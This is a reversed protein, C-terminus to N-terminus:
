PTFRREVAELLPEDMPLTLSAGNTAFHMAEDGHSAATIRSRPLFSGDVGHSHHSHLHDRM